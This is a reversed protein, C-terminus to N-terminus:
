GKVKLKEEGGDNSDGQESNTDDVAKDEDGATASSRQGDLDDEGEEGLKENGDAINSGADVRCGHLIVGRHNHVPILVTHVRHLSEIASVLIQAFVSDWPYFKKRKNNLYKYKSGYVWSM